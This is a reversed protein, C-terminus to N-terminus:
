QTTISPGHPKVHKRSIGRPSRMMSRNRNKKSASPSKASAKVSKASAKVSKASAKVSKASAKVSKTNGGAASEAILTNEVVDIYRLVEGLLFDNFEILEEITRTKPKVDVYEKIEAPTLHMFRKYNHATHFGFYEEKIGAMFHNISRNPLEEALGELLFADLSYLYTYVERISKVKRLKKLDHTYIHEMIASLKYLLKVDPDECPLYCNLEWLIFAITTLPNHNYKEIDFGGGRAFVEGIVGANPFEAPGEANAAALPLAAIAGVAARVEGLPREAYHGQARQALVVLEAHTDRVSAISFGGKNEVLAEFATDNGIPDVDGEPFFIGRLIELSPIDQIDPVKIVGAPKGRYDGQLVQAVALIKDYEKKDAAAVIKGRLRLMLAILDGKEDRNLITNLYSFIGAANENLDTKRFLSNRGFINIKDIIEKKALFAKSVYGNKFMTNFFMSICLEATLADKFGVRASITFDLLQYHKKYISIYNTLSDKNETLTREIGAKAKQKFIDTLMKYVGEEGAETIRPCMQRFICIRVADELTAKLYDQIQKNTGVADISGTTKALYSSAIKDDMATWEEDYKRKCTMYNGKVTTNINEEPSKLSKYLKDFHEISTISASDRYFTSLWYEGSTKDYMTLIVDVGMKLAYLFCIRDNTVLRIRMKPPLGFREPFLCALVQLWDGARKNQLCMHYDEEQTTPRGGGGGGGGRGVNGLIWAGLKALSISLKSVTNARKDDLRTKFVDNNVTKTKNTFEISTARIGHVTRVAPIHISYKSFFLETPHLNVLDDVDTAPYAVNTPNDDYVKNVRVESGRPTDMSKNAKLAGDVIGERTLVYTATRVPVGVGAKVKLLGEAIPVSAADITFAFSDPGEGNNLFDYLQAGDIAWEREKDDEESGPDVQTVRLSRVTYTDGAKTSRAFPTGGSRIFIGMFADRIGEDATGPAVFKLFDNILQWESKPM